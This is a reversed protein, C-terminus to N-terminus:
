TRLWDDYKRSTSHVRGASQGVTSAIEGTELLQKVRMLDVPIQKEPAEGFLKAISKGVAGGPPQYHLKIQVVTGRGGTAPTFRVTGANEVTSGPLSRWAILENPEDNIIEADWEIETGVPGKALWHSHGDGTDTVALLHSM